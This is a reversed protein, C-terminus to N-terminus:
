FTICNILLLHLVTMDHLYIGSCELM